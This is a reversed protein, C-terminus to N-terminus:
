IRMLKEANGHAIANREDDALDAQELFGKV